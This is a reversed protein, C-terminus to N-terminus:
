HAEVLKSHGYETRGLMYFTDVLSIHSGLLLEAAVVAALSATATRAASLVLFSWGVQLTISGAHVKQQDLTSM